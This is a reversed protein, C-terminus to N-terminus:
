LGAILHAPPVLPGHPALLLESGGPHGDAQNIKKSMLYILFSAISIAMRECSSPFRGRPVLCQACPCAAGEWCKTGAGSGGLVPAPVPSPNQAAPAV